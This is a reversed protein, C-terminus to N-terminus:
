DCEIEKTSPWIYPMYCIEDSDKTVTWGILYGSNGVIQAAMLPASAAVIVGLAFGSIFKKM